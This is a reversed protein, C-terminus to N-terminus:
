NEYEEIAPSAGSDRGGFSSRIRARYLRLHQITAMRLRLEEEAHIKLISWGSRVIKLEKVVEMWGDVWNVVM